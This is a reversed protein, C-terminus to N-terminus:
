GWPCECSPFCRACCPHSLPGCGAPRSNSGCNSVPGCLRAFPDYAPNPYNCPVARCRLSACKPPCGPSCCGPLAFKPLDSPSCFPPLLPPGNSCRTPASYRSVCCLTPCCGCCNGRCCAMLEDIFAKTSDLSRSYNKIGIGEYQLSIFVPGRLFRRCDAKVFLLAFSALENKLVM